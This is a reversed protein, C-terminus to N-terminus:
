YPFYNIVTITPSESPKPTVSVPLPQTPLSPIPLLSYLNTGTEFVILSLYYKSSKDLLYYNKLILSRLHLSVVQHQGRILLLIISSLYSIPSIRSTQTSLRTYSTETQSMEFIVSEQSCLIPISITDSSKFYVTRPIVLYSFKFFFVIKSFSFSFSSSSYGMLVLFQQNLNKTLFNTIFSYISQRPLFKPTSM